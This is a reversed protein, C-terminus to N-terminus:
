RGRCAGPRRTSRSRGRASAPSGSAAPPSGAPTRRRRGPGTTRPPRCRAAGPRSRGRGLRQGLDLADPREHGGGDTAVEGIRRRGADEVLEDLDPDHGFPRVHRRRARRDLGSGQGALRDHHGARELPERALLGLVRDPGGAALGGPGHRLLRVVDHGAFRGTGLEGLGLLQADRDQVLCPEAPQEGALVLIPSSTTWGFMSNM